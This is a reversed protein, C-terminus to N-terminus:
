ARRRRRGLPPRAAPGAAPGARRILDSGNKVRGRGKLSSIRERRVRDRRRRDRSESVPSSSSVFLLILQQM